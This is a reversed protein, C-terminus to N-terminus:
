KADGGGGLRVVTASGGSVGPTPRRFYVLVGIVLAVATVASIVVTAVMSIGFIALM